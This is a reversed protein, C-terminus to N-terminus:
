RIDLADGIRDCKPIGASSLIVCLLTRVSTQSGMSRPKNLRAPTQIFVKMTEGFVLVQLAPICTGVVPM